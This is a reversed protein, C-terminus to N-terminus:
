MNSSGPCKHPQIRPSVPIQPDDAHGRPPTPPALPGVFWSTIELCEPSFM